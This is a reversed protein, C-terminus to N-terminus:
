GTIAGASPRFDSNCRGFTHYWRDLEQHSIQAFVSEFRAM